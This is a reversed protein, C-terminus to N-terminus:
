VCSWHEVYSLPERTLLFGVLRDSGGKLAKHCEYLTTAPDPVGLGLHSASLYLLKRFIKDVMMEVLMDQLFIRALAEKMPGM